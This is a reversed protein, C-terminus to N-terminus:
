LVPICPLCTAVKGDYLLSYCKDLRFNLCIDHCRNDVQTVVEQLEALSSSIITLDDAYGKVKHPKSHAASTLTHSSPDCSRPLFSKGNDKALKWRIQLLGVLEIQGGKRYQLRAKGMHNM